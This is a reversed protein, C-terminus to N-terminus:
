HKRHQHCPGGGSVWRVCPVGLRTTVQCQGMGLRSCRVCRQGPELTNACCACWWGIPHPCPHSPATDMPTIKGISHDRVRSLIVLEGM